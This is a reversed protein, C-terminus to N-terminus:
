RKSARRRAPAAQEAEDPPTATEEAPLEPGPEAVGAQVLQAAEEDPLDVIGDKDPWEVGDRTSSIKVRMRIRM